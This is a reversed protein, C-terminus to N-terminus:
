CRARDRAAHREDNGAVSMAVIPALGIISTVSLDFAGAMILVTM